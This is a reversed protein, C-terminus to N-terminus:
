NGTLYFCVSDGDNKNNLEEAKLKFNIREQETFLPNGKLFSKEDMLPIGMKYQESGEFQFESSDFKIERINFGAQDALLKMSELSHLFIHRPADLQVWNERYTRWAYSSVTPIRILLVGTPSLINKLDKLIKLPEDMHEFSHNLMIFEFKGTVEEIDKKLIRVHASPYIDKEIYPDIGTLNKYGAKGLDIILKGNGSGVDLISSNFKVGAIKFWDCYPPFGYKLGSLWGPFNKRYLFHEARKKKLYQSLWNETNIVTDFSYYNLPYYKTPNEPIDMLQLCKCNGCELYTFVEPFGFMQEKVEYVANGEVNNCIKCGKM